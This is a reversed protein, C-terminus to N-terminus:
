ARLRHAQDDAASAPVHRPVIRTSWGLARTGGILLAPFVLFLDGGTLQTFPLFRSDVFKAAGECTIAKRVGDARMYHGATEAVYNDDGRAVFQQYGAFRCTTSRDVGVVLVPRTGDTYYSGPDSESTAAFRVWLLLAAYAVFVAVALPFLARCVRALPGPRAHQLRCHGLLFLV